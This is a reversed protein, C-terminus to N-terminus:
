TAQFRLLSNTIPKPSLILNTHVRRILIIRSTAETAQLFKSVRARSTRKATPTMFKGPFLSYWRHFHGNIFTMTEKVAKATLASFDQREQKMASTHLIM